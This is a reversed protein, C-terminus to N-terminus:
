LGEPNEIKQDVSLATIDARGSFSLDGWRWVSVIEKTVYYHRDYGRSTKYYYEHRYWQEPKVETWKLPNHLDDLYCSLTLRENYDDRPDILRWEKGDHEIHCDKDMEEHWWKKSRDIEPKWEKWDTREIFAKLDQKSADWRVGEIDRDMYKLEGDQFFYYADKPTDEHCLKKEMFDPIEFARM